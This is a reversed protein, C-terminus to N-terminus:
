ESRQSLQPLSPVHLSVRAAQLIFGGGSRCPPDHLGEESRILGAEDNSHGIRMDRRDSAGHRRAPQETSTKANNCSHPRPAIHKGSCNISRPQGPKLLHGFSCSYTETRGGHKCSSPIIASCSPSSSKTSLIYIHGLSCGPRVRPELAPAFPAFPAGNSSFWM